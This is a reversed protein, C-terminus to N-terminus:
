TQGSANSYGDSNREKWGNSLIDINNGPTAEANSSNALLRRTAVNFSDRSADFMIWGGVDGNNSTQKRMIFKPRFGTYVFPGDTSGNGTYSGFKSFGAIESWCYAVMSNGNGNQSDAYDLTITTSGFTNNNDTSQFRQNTTQLTLHWGDTPNGINNGQVLWATGAVSRNKWIVFVPAVGLGHGVTAGATGNGTYTVISFGATTNVSVTSTITGSTNSTNTGQGNKYVGGVPKLANFVNLRGSLVILFPEV